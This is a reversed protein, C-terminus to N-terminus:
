ANDSNAQFCCTGIHMYAHRMARSYGALLNRALDHFCSPLVISGEITPLLASLRGVVSLCKDCYGWFLPCHISVIQMCENWTM